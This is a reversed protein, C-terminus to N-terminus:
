AAKKASQTKAEEAMHANAIIRAVLLDARDLLKNAKSILIERRIQKFDKM